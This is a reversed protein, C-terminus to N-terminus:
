NRKLIRYLSAEGREIVYGMPLLIAVFVIIQLTPSLFSASLTIWKYIFISHFLYIAYSHRGYALIVQFVRRLNITQLYTGFTCVSWFVGAALLPRVLGYGLSFLSISDLYLTVAFFVLALLCYLKAPPGFTCQLDSSFERAVVIGLSFDILFAFVSYNGNLNLLPVFRAVISIAIVALLIYRSSIREFLLWLCPFLLYLQIILSIFWWAGQLDFIYQTFGHVGIIHYFVSAMDVSANDGGILADLILLTAIAFWYMPLIRVLRRRLFAYWKTEKNTMCTRALLFGSLIVFLDVGLAGHMMVRYFADYIGPGDPLFTEPFGKLVHYVVVWLIAIGKVLDPIFLKQKFPDM